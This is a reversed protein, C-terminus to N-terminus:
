RGVSVTMRDEEDMWGDMWGMSRKTTGIWSFFKRDLFRLYSMENCLFLFRSGAEGGRGGEMCSPLDGLQSEGAPEM